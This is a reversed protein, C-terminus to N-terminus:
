DTNGITGDIDSVATKLPDEWHYYKRMPIAVVDLVVLVLTM